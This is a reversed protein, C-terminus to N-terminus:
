EPGILFLQDNASSCPREIAEAGPESDGGKLAVCRGSSAPRIRYAAGVPELRFRQNARAGTCDSWPELMGAAQGAPVVTLCGVGKAPDPHDWQLHLLGAGAPTLFTRLPGAEACPRLAAIEPAYAIDRARGATLCLSPDGAPRVRVWTRSSAPGASSSVAGGQTASGSQTASGGQTGAGGPTASTGSTASGSQTGSGGPAASTGLAESISQAGGSHTTGGNTTDAQEESAATKRAAPDSSFQASARSASERASIHGLQWAGLLCLLTVGGVGALRRRRTLRGDPASSRVRPGEEGGAGVPPGAGAGSGVPPGAGEGSREGDQRVRDDDQRVRDGPPLATPPVPPPPVPALGSAHTEAAAALRRRADVWDAVTDEDAGCARVFAALLDERPLDARNLAGSLTARPLVDGAAAARRELDRYSCASWARLRRMQTVFEAPTAATQPQPRTDSM